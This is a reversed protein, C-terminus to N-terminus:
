AIDPELNIRELWGPRELDATDTVCALRVSLASRTAEDGRRAAICAECDRIRAPPQVNRHRDDNGDGGSLTRALKQVELPGLDDNVSRGPLLGVLQGPRHDDVGVGEDMRKVIRQEPFPM